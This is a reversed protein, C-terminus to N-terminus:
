IEIVQILISEMIYIQKIYKFFSSNLFNLNRTFYLLFESRLNHWFVPKRQDM